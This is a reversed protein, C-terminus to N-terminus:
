GVMYGVRVDKPGDMITVGVNSARDTTVGTALKLVALVLIGHFVISLGPGALIRQYLFHMVNRRRKAMLEPSTEVSEVLEEMHTKPKHETDM